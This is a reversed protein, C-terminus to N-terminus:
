RRPRVTGGRRRSSSARSGSGQAAQTGLVMRVVTTAPCQWSEYARSGDARNEDAPNGDLLGEDPRGAGAQGAGAQGAGAQGAGAQGAGAQGAGAQGAATQAAATQGSNAWRTGAQVVSVESIGLRRLVPGAAETEEVAREGKVALILGGPRVLPVALGALRDLPAVARATVVDASFQGAVEEARARRITINALDLDEVCEELFSVRRATPEVLTIAVDPLLMALVLGPLGAGSGIDVLTSPTPILEAILACNLLHREWLREPERPGILGRVVGPGALLEAYRQALPFADGFV